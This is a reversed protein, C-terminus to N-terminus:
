RGAVACSRRFTPRCVILVPVPLSPNKCPKWAASTLQSLQQSKFIKSQDCTVAPCLAPISCLSPACQKSLQLHLRAAWSAASVAPIEALTPLIRRPARVGASKTTNRRAPLALPQECRVSVASVRLHKHPPLCGPQVIGKGEDSLDDKSQQKVAVVLACREDGIGKTGPVCSSRLNIRRVPSDPM